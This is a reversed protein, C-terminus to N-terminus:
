PTKLEDLAARLRPEDGFRLRATELERRAGAPDGLERRVRAVGLHYEVLGPYIDRARMFAALAKTLNGRRREVHGILGHANALMTTEGAVQLL